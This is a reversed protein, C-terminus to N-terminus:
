GGWNKILKAAALRSHRADAVQFPSCQWRDNDVDDRDWAFRICDSAQSFDARIYLTGHRSTKSDLQQKTKM